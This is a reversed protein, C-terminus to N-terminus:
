FQMILACYNKYFDKCYELQLQKLDNIWGIVANQYPHSNFALAYLEEELKQAPNNDVSLRREEMVIYRKQELNEDNLKLSRMRDAEIALIEELKESNFEGM